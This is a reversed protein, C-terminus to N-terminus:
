EESHEPAEEDGSSESSDSIEDEPALYGSRSADPRFRGTMVRQLIDELERVPAAINDRGYIMETGNRGKSHYGLTARTIRTMGYKACWSLTTSKLSHTGYQKVVAPDFGCKYLLSRLWKGGAEASIPVEGWGYDQAYGPLLPRGIGLKPGSLEARDLWAIAWSESLLGYIPAIMPLWRVKRELSFSTKSREVLAELYGKPGDRTQHVDRFIGGSNQGDSFRARAYVMWLFVGAAYRDQDDFKRDEYRGNIVVEELAKVHAVQLPPKQQHKAKTLFHAKSVGGVRTSLSSEVGDAGLTHKMFVLSSLFSKPFTAAAKVGYTSM